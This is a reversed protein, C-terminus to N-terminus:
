ALSKYSNKGQSCWAYMIKKEESSAMCSRKNKAQSAAPYKKWIEWVVGGGGGGGEGLRDM